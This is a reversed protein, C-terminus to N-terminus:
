ESRAAQWGNFAGVVASWTAFIWGLALLAPSTVESMLGFIVLAYAFGIAAAIM